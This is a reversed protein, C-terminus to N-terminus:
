PPALLLLLLQPLLPDDILGSLNDLGVNRTM